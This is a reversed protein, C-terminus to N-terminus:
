FFATLGSRFAYQEWDKSDVYQWSYNTRLLLYPTIKYGIVFSHRLVHDDWPQNDIESFRLTDIRYALYSGPLFPPEFRFDLYGAFSSASEEGLVRFSVDGDRQVVPAKFVAYFLEGSLEFYGFGFKFDTGVMTQRFTSLDGIDANLRHPRMFTGHNFSFGQEWFYKPKLALRGVIGWHLPDTNLKPTLAAGNVLALELRTKGEEMDWAFQLGDVYGGWYHLANGWDPVNDIRLTGWASNNMFGLRDSLDTYYGYALPLDIFTRDMPFQNSNFRGFPSIFRGATIELPGEASSWKVNLQGLRFQDFANGSYRQLILRTNISWQESFKVSALLNAEVPSLRWDTKRAHIGNYYFHSDEGGKSLELEFNGNLQLEPQAYISWGLIWFAVTFFANKM